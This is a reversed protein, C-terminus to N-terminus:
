ARREASIPNQLGPIYVMAIQKLGWTTTIYALFIEVHNVLNVPNKNKRMKYIMYIRDIGTLFPRKIGVKVLISLISLISNM